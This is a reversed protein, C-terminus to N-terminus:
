KYLTGYMCFVIQLGGVTRRAIVKDQQGATNIKKISNHVVKVCEGPVLDSEEVPHYGLYRTPFKHGKVEVPSLASSVSSSNASLDSEESLSQLTPSHSNRSEM